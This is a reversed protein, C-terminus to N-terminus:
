SLTQFLRTFLQKKLNGVGSGDIASLSVGQESVFGSVDCKNYVMMVPIHSCDLSAITEEVIHIKEQYLVDKTDVVHLLLDSFAIEQLTSRFATSLSSPLSRIFGITDVLLVEKLGIKAKRVLPDLTAFLQDMVHTDSGTLRNFLTSKGANTYGVLAVVPIDSIVRRKRNLSQTKQLSQLQKRLKTQRNRLIRRDVEIQTEGPGSRLGIGGKQRELHTWGRVLKTSMYELRALEVQIKGVSTDARSEFLQLLMETRDIVSVCLQKELNRQIRAQVPISFVLTKCDTLKILDFLNTLQGSSLYTAPKIERVLFRACLIAQMANSHILHNFETLYDLQDKKYTDVYILLVQRPKTTKM